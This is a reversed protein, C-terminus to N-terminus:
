FETPTFLRIYLSPSSTTHRLVDRMEILAHLNTDPPSYDVKKNSQLSGQIPVSSDRFCPLVVHLHCWKEKM